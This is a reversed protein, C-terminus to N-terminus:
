DTRKPGASVSSTPTLVIIYAYTCTCVCMCVGWVHWVYCICYTCVVRMYEVLCEVGCWLLHM